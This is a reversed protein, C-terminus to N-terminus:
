QGHDADASSGDTKGPHGDSGDSAADAASGDIPADHTPEVFNGNGSNDTCNLGFIAGGAVLLGSLALMGFSKSVSKPDFREDVM